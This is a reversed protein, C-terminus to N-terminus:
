AGDQPGAVPLEFRFVAGREPHPEAWLRGGHAEVISRCIPLGLGLGQPKTTYFPQFLSDPDPPLGHGEDRVSAAVRGQRLITAVTIRRSGPANAAMADAANLVLNLILQQLQVRDGAVSPLGDDLERVVTVGRGLLDARSIQLVEGIVDNLQLPQRSLEGRRFMARLRGIVEGARRDAAVIDSLIAQVETIDPPQQALLNQAAQANTLIIGLPQILEHALSGSLAGLTSVRTLHMLNDRLERTEREALKQATIDRVVSFIIHAEGTDSRRLVLALHHIWKLGGDSHLYRYELSLQDCKGHILKQREELVFQRDHPHLHDMWMQLSMLFSQPGEPLGFIEHYREDIFGTGEVYDIESFGLGALEAAQSVRAKAARFEEETRKRDTIDISIGMIRGVEGAPTSHPRGRSSIWRTSGDGIRIRYEVNVPERAHVAREMSSQVLSWDAPHVARQLNEIGVAGEPPYGFMARAKENTWFTWTHCDLVWFGAEASEAAMSLREESEQLAQQLHKRALANAFVEAVLQLRKVVGSPWAREARSTIFTLAGVPPKGGASLPIILSSKTGFHRSSERDVAAEAPFEEISSLTVTRGALVQMQCWPFYEKASMREPRGPVREDSSFFDTLLFSGGDEVSWQWLGVVDLGLFECIDRQAELIVKEVDEAALNVFKSSLDAILTEFRLREDLEMHTSTDEPSM